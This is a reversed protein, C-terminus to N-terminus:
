FVPLVGLFKDNCLSKEREPGEKGSGPLTVIHRSWNWAQYNLRPNFSVDAPNHAQKFCYLLSM